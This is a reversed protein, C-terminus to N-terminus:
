PSIYGYLAACASPQSNFLNAFYRFRIEFSDQETQPILGSGSETAQELENLVVLKLVDAPIMYIRVPMDKDVIVPVNNFSLGISKAGKWLKPDLTEGNPYRRDAVLLKGFYRSSDFDMLIGQYMGNGTGGRRLGQNWATQMGDITLQGGAMNLLNGQFQPNASRDVGYITTTAGDLSYGLGQIENGYSGSRVVLDGSAATVATDLTVTATTTGTVATIGIATAKYVGASSVIDVVMDPFLFKSGDETTGERGQVSISNTAVANASLKGLNGTGDFSLQRNLDNKLDAYGSKVMADLQRLFSGKDNKSAAIMGSTIGCRLFNFKHDVKAQVTKYRGIQPLNGGDSSAGIGQNRAMKLAFYTADGAVGAKTKEVFSMVPMDNNLQDIMGDVYFRKLLNGTENSISSFTNSM